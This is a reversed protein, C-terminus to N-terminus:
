SILVGLPVAPPNRQPLQVIVRCKSHNSILVPVQGSQGKNQKYSNSRASLLNSVRALNTM